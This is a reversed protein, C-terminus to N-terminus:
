IISQALAVLGLINNNTPATLFDRRNLVLGLGSFRGVNSCAAQCDEPTYDSYFDVLLGFDTPDALVCGVYTWGAAVRTNQAGTIALVTLASTFVARTSRAM